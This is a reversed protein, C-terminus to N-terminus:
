IQCTEIQIEVRGVCCVVNIEIYIYMYIVTNRFRILFFEYAFCLPFDHDMDSRYVIMINIFYCKSFTLQSQSFSAANRYSSSFFPLVNVM